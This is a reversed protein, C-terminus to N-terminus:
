IKKVCDNFLGHKEYDKGVFIRKGNYDYIKM